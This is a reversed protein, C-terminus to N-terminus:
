RGCFHSLEDVLERALHVVGDLAGGFPIVAISRWGAVGVSAIRRLLGAIEWGLVARPLLWWSRSRSRNGTDADADADAGLWRRWGHGTGSLLWLGPKIVPDAQVIGAESGEVHARCTVVGHQPWGGIGAGENGLGARDGHWGMDGDTTVHGAKPDADSGLDQERPILVPLVVHSYEGTGGSGNGLISWTRISSDDVGLLRQWHHTPSPERDLVERCSSLWKGSPHDARCAHQAHLRTERCNSGPHRRHDGLTHPICGATQYWRLPVVVGTGHRHQLLETRAGIHRGHCAPRIHCLERVPQQRIWRRWPGAMRSWVGHCTVAM